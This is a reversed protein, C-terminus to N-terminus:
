IKIDLLSSIEVDITDKVTGVLSTDSCLKLFQDGFGSSISLSSSTPPLKANKSDDKAEETKKTKAKAADSVEADGKRSYEVKANLMEEDENIHDDGKDDVGGEKDDKEEVDLQDEGTRESLTASIVTSENLVGPITGTGEGLGRIGLQRKSTKKSEKLAQMIDTKKKASEPVYETVIRAHTAHVQKAAEEEKAKVLSISKGLELDVYPDLIINDDASIKVKKKVVRRSAIKTKVKSRSKKPPIQSTSYKIFMQYSELQKIADNLMVEPITVGYEQYDEGIRVFKLRSVIGDDKITHYHQYKLNLLSKQQKLFHNM